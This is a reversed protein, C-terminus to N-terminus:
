SDGFQLLTPQLVYGSKSIEIEITSECAEERDTASWCDNQNEWNPEM